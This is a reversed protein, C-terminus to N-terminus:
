AGHPLGRRIRTRSTSPTTAMLREPTRVVARGRKTAGVLIAMNGDPHRNEYMLQHCAGTEEFPFVRSLCPDIKGQVVLDNFANSQEDHRLPLGPLAEPADLTACTSVLTTATTGACIVVMGGTDCVFVSTPLTDEGPHEFVIRPNRREGLM